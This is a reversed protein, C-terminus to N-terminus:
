ANRWGTASWPPMSDQGVYDDMTQYPSVKVTLFTAVGVVGAYIAVALWQDEPGIMFWALTLILIVGLWVARMVIRSQGSTLTKM